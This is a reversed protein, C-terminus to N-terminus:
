QNLPDVMLSDKIKIPLFPFFNVFKIVGAPDLRFCCIIMPAYSHKKGRMEKRKKEMAFLSLLYSSTIPQLNCLNRMSVYTNRLMHGQTWCFLMTFNSVFLLFFLLFQWEIM